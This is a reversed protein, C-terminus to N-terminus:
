TATWVVGNTTIDIRGKFSSMIRELDGPLTVSRGAYREIVARSVRCTGPVLVRLYAGRDVVEVNQNEERIAKVVANTLTGVHLVPGVTDRCAQEEVDVWVEGADIKVPFRVLSKGRPNVGEGTLLNYQWGHASCTLVHDKTPCGSLKVGQHVCHDAYAHVTGGMNVLLVRQGNVVVGVVEDEWLDAALMVPQFSM